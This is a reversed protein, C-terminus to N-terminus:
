FIQLKEPISCGTLSYLLAERLSDGALLPFSSPCCRNALHLATSSYWQGPCWRGLSSHFDGTDSLCRDFSHWSPALIVLLSLWPVTTQINHLLVLSSGVTMQWFLEPSLVSTPWSLRQLLAGSGSVGGASLAVSLALAQSGGTSSADVLACTGAGAGASFFSALRPDHHYGSYPTGCTSTQKRNEM